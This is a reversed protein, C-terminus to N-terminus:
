KELFVYEKLDFKMKTIWSTAGNALNEAKLINRTKRIIFLVDDQDEIRFVTDGKKVSDFKAPQFLLREMM